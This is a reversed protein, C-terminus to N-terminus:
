NFSFIERCEYLNEPHACSKEFFWKAVEEGEIGEPKGDMLMDYQAIKYEEAETVGQKVKKQKLAELEQLNENIRKYTDKTPMLVFGGDVTICKVEFVDVYWGYATKVHPTLEGGSAFYEDAAIITKGAKKAPKYAYKNLADLVEGTGPLFHDLVKGVIKVGTEGMGVTDASVPTYLADDKQAMIEARADAGNRIDIESLHQKADRPIQADVERRLSQYYPSDPDWRDAYASNSNWPRRNPGFLKVHEKQPVVYSIEGFDGITVATGEEGDSFLMAGEADLHRVAMHNKIISNFTADDLEGNLYRNYSVDYYANECMIFKDWKEQNRDYYHFPQYEPPDGVYTIHQDTTDTYLANLIQEKLEQNTTNLAVYALIEIDEDTLDEVPKELIQKVKTEILNMYEDACKNLLGGISIPNSFSSINIIDAAKKVASAYSECMGSIKQFGASYEKEANAVAEWTRGIRNITVSKNDELSRIYKEVNGNIKDQDKPYLGLWHKFKEWGSRIKGSTDDYYTDIYKMFAEITAASYDRIKRKM